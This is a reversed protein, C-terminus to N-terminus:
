SGIIGFLSVGRTGAITIGVAIPVVTYAVFHVLLGPKDGWAKKMADLKGFKSPDKHRLDATYCGYAAAAIGVIITLSDM